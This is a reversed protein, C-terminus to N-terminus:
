YGNGSYNEPTTRSNTRSQCNKKDEESACLVPNLPSSEWHILDRSRVVHTEYGNFAELYFDYYYGDLYRLAHPASYRDRSYACEHPTVYWEVLDKVSDNNVFASGLHFGKAFAPTAAGTEHDIFHFFSDGTKNAEYKIRVYEFRYLKRKFVVPTTEVLDCDITGLKVIRPRQVNQNKPTTQGDAFIISVLLFLTIFSKLHM